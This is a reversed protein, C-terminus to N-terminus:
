QEQLNLITAREIEVLNKVPRHSVPTLSDIKRVIDAGKVVKGFCPEGEQLPFGFKDLDKHRGHLKTNDVKNIYFSPGLNGKSFGLTMEEHPYAPNHEQYMLSPSYSLEKFKKQIIKEKRPNNNKDGIMIVHQVSIFFSCGEYLGSSVMDLFTLVTHPMMDNPALEVTFSAKDKSNGQVYVIDFLVQHPGQGYRENLSRQSSLSIARRMSDLNNGWMSDKMNLIKLEKKQAVLQTELEQRKNGSQLSNETRECNQNLRLIHDENAKLDKIAVQLKKTVENKDKLTQSYTASINDYNQEIKTVAKLKKRMFHNDDECITGLKKAEDLQKEIKSLANVYNQQLDQFSQRFDYSVSDFAVSYKTELMHSSSFFGLFAGVALITVYLLLSTGCLSKRSLDEEDSFTLDFPQGGCKDDEDKHVFILNDHLHKSATNNMEIKLACL